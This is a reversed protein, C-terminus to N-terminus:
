KKRRYTIFQIEEMEWAIVEIGCGAISAQESFVDSVGNIGLFWDGIKYVSTSIEYWRHKDVDLGDVICKPKAKHFLNCKDEVEYFSLCKTENIENIIADFEQKTM